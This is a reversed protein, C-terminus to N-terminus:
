PEPNLNPEPNSRTAGVREGSTNRRISVVDFRLEGSQQAYLVRVVGVGAALAALQLGRPAAAAIVLCVVLSVAPVLRPM